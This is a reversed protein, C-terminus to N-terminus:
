SLVQSSESALLLQSLLRLWGMRWEVNICIIVQNTRLDKEGFILRNGLGRWFALTGFSDFFRRLHDDSLIDGFNRKAIDGSLVALPLEGALLLRSLLSLRDTRTVNVRIFVHGM